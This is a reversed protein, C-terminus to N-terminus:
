LYTSIHIIINTIVKGLEFYVNSILIVMILYKSFEDISDVLKNYKLNTAKVVSFSLRQATPLYTLGM